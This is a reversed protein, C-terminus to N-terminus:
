NRGAPDGSRYATDKAIARPERSCAPETTATSWSLQGMVHPIKAEWDPPRVWMGQPNSPPNEVM